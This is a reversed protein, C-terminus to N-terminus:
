NGAPAPAVEEALIMVKGDDGHVHHYLPRIAALLEQHRRENQEGSQEFMQLTEQRMREMAEQTQYHRRDVVELIEQHRREVVELTERHRREVLDFTEEYREDVRNRTEQHQRYNSKDRFNITWIFLGAIVTILAVMAGVGIGAMQILETSTAMM